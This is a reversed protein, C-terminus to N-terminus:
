VKIPLSARPPVDLRRHIWSRTCRNCQAVLLPRKGEEALVRTLVDTSTCRGCVLM